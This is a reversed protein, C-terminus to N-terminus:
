TNTVQLHRFGDLWFAPVHSIRNYSLDISVLAYLGTLTVAQTLQNHQLYIRRLSKMAYLNEVVTLRGAELHLTELRTLHNFLEPEVWELDSFAADLVMLHHFQGLMNRTLNGISMEGISLRTLPLAVSQVSKSGRPAPTNSRNKGTVNQCTSAYGTLARALSEPDLPNGTLSLYKLSASVSCLADDDIVALETEALNLVDLPVYSLPRLDTASLFHIRNRSLDLHRLSRLQAFSSDLTAKTIENCSLDLVELGPAFSSLNTPVTRLLNLSLDLQRLSESVCRPRRSVQFSKIMNGSLSLEQLSTMVCFSTTDVSTLRNRDLVLQSVRRSRTFEEPDVQGITNDELYVRRASQPLREPVVNLSRQSCDLTEMNNYCDCVDPCWLTSPSVTTPDVAAQETPTSDVHRLVLLLVTVASEVSRHHRHHCVTSLSAM